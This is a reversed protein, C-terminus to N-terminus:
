RCHSRRDIPKGLAIEDFALGLIDDTLRFRDRCLELLVEHTADM